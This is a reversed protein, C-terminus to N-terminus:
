AAWGWRGNLQFTDENRYVEGIRGVLRDAVRGAERLVKATLDGKQM